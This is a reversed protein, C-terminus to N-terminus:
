RPGGHHILAWAVAAGFFFVASPELQYHLYRIGQPVMSTREDVHLGFAAAYLALAFAGGATPLILDATTKFHLTETRRLQELVLFFVTGIAPLIAARRSRVIVVKPEEGM